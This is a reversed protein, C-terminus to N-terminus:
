GAGSFMCMGGSAVWDKLCTQSQGGLWTSGKPGYVEVRQHMYVGILKSIRGAPNPAVKMFPLFSHM